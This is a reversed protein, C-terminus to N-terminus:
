SEEDSLIPQHNLCILFNFNVIEYKLSLIGSCFRFLKGPTILKLKSEPYIRSFTETHKGLDPHRHLSLPIIIIEPMIIPQNRYSIPLFAM